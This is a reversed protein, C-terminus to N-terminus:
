STPRHGCGGNQAPRLNVTQAQLAGSSDASGTAALCVGQTIAQQTAAARKTYQTAPTVTVTTASANQDTGNVVITNGTVSAVTGHVAPGGHGGRHRPREQQQQGASAACQGSDGVGVLVARATVSGDSSDRTPRVTVCSGSTVDTLAAPTIQSIRTSPTIDVTANGDRQNVQVTNGSVSSVLGAV